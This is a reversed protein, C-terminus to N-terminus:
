CIFVSVYIDRYIRRWWGHHGCVRGREVLQNCGWRVEGQRLVQMFVYPSSYYATECTHSWLGASVHICKELSADPFTCATYVCSCWTMVQFSQSMPLITDVKVGHQQIHVHAHGVHWGIVRSGVGFPLCALQWLRDTFAFSTMRRHAQARRLGQGPGHELM